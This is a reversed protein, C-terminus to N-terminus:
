RFYDCSKAGLVFSLIEEYEKEYKLIQKESICSNKTARLLTNKPTNEPDTLELVTVSYGHKKLRAARIADTFAECLKNKLHPYSLVFDLNENEIKGNLYKHCCPTSLIVKASLSIATDIVIDTAVDCAHLSIVMDPAKKASLKTIDCCVFDMGTFGCENKVRECYRIVEGKLDACLMYVSRGMLETLYYYVAFSLYSKGCCLDYVTVTDEKPLNEYVDRVNELFRNIQRFKGQKKDHVRGNRDSIGLSILFPEDGRLIYNRQVDLSDFAASEPKPAEEILRELRKDGLCVEREGKRKYEADGLETILNVQRYESFLPLVAATIEDRKINKHKVTNEPLFYELALIPEGRHMCVRASIKSIKSEDPRSFVCKKFVGRDFALLLLKSFSNKM